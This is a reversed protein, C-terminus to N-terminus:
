EIIQSQLPGVMRPRIMKGINTWTVGGDTTTEGITTNWDPETSGTVGSVSTAKFIYPVTQPTSSFCKDNVQVTSDPGWKVGCNPVGLIMYAGDMPLNDILYTSSNSVISAVKDLTNSAYATVNWDEEYIVDGPLVAINGIQTVM